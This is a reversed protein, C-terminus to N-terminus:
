SPNALKIKFHTKHSLNFWTVMVSVKAAYDVCRDVSFYKVQKRGNLNLLM